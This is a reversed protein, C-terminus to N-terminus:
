DKNARRIIGDRNAPFWPMSTVYTAFYPEKHKNLQSVCNIIRWKWAQLICPEPPNPCLLEHQLRYAWQHPNSRVKLEGENSIEMLGPQAASQGRLRHLGEIQHSSLISGQNQEINM